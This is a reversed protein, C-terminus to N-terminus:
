AVAARAEWARSGCPHEIVGGWRDVAAAPGWAKCPPHAVVPHTRADREEPWPDVSELGAYPGDPLVFLAAVTRKV